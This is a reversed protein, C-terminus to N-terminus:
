RQVSDNVSTAAGTAAAAVTSFASSVLSSFTSAASAGGGEEASSLLKDTQSSSAAGPKTGSYSKWDALLNSATPEKDPASGSFWTSISQMEVVLKFNFISFKQLLKNEISIM